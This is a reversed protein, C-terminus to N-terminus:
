VCAKRAVLAVFVLERIDPSGSIASAQQCKCLPEPSESTPCKDVDDELPESDEGLNDVEQDFRHHGTGTIIKVAVTKSPLIAIVDIISKGFEGVRREKVGYDRGILGEGSIRVFVRKSKQL